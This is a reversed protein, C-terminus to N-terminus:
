RAPDGRLGRDPRWSATATRLSRPAILGAAAVVPGGLVYGVIGRSRRTCCGPGRSRPQPGPRRRGAALPPRRHEGLHVAVLVGHEAPVRVLFSSVAAPPWASCRSIPQQPRAPLKPKWTPWPSTLSAQASRARSGRSGSAARARHDEGVSEAAAGLDVFEVAAAAFGHVEGLQKGRRPAEVVVMGFSGGGRRGAGGGRVALAAARAPVAAARAPPAAIAPPTAAAARQASM